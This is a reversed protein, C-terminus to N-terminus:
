ISRMLVFGDGSNQGVMSTYYNDISGSPFKSLTHSVNDEEQNIYALVNMGLDDASLYQTKNILDNLIVPVSDATNQLYLLNTLSMDQVVGNKDMISMKEANMSFTPIDPALTGYLKFHNYNRISFDGGSIDLFGKIYTQKLKNAQETQIDTWDAM